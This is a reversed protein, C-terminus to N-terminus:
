AQSGVAVAGPDPELRALRLDGVPREGLGLFGEAAVVQDLAVRLVLGDLPGLLQRQAVAAVDLDPGDPRHSTGHPRTSGRCARTASTKRRSYARTTEETARITRSRSAASSTTWSAKASARSCQGRLPTGD